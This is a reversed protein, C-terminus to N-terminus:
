IEAWKERQQAETLKKREFIRGAVVTLTAVLITGTLGVVAVTIQPDVRRVAWWTASVMGALACLVLVLIAVVVALQRREISRDQVAM